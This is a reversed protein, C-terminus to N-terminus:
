KRVCPLFIVKAPTTEKDAIRVNSHAGTTDVEVNESGTGASAEGRVESGAPANDSLRVIIDFSAAQGAAINGLNCNSLGIGCGASDTVYTLMNSYAVNVSVNDLVGQGNNVATVTLTFLDGPSVKAASSSMTLRMRRVAEVRSFASAWDNGNNDDYTEASVIADLAVKAGSGLAENTTVKIKITATEGSNLYGLACAQFSILCSGKTSSISDLEGAGSLFTAVEVNKAQSPGHNTVRLIFEVQEGSKVKNDDVRLTLGLDAVDEIQHEVVAHNNSPDLDTGESEVDAQNNISQADKAWVEVNFVVQEGPKLIGLKCVLQQNGSANGQHPTCFNPAKYRYDGDSSILEIVKTDFANGPGFNDVVITYKISQGENISSDPKGFKRIKLDNVNRFVLDESYAYIPIGSSPPTLSSVEVVNDSHHGDHVNPKVQVVIDFKFTKGVAINGLQCTVDEGANTCMVGHSYLYEVSGTLEDFVEVNRALSPGHNTVEVTYFFIEGTAPSLSSASKKVSLEARNLIKTEATSEKDATSSSTVKATNSVTGPPTESKIHGLVQIQHHKGPPMNGLSCTLLRASPAFVCESGNGGVVQVSEYAFQPPLEDKVIVNAATSPNGSSVDIFYSVKNGAVVTGPLSQKFITLDGTARLAMSASTRNNDGFPDYTDSKVTVNNIVGPSSTYNPDTPGTITLIIEDDKAMNGLNCVITAGITCSPNSPSGLVQVSNVLQNPPLIDTVQVNEAASPGINRVTVTWTAIEGASITPTTASKEVSIDASAAVHMSATDNNNSMDPDQPDAAFVRAENNVDVEEYAVVQANIVWREYRALEDRTCSFTIPQGVDGAQPPSINCSGGAPTLRLLEFPGSGFITDEVVIDQAASVGLNDVFITYVFPEGARIQGDPKVFKQLKLDAWGVVKISAEATAPEPLHCVNNDGDDRCATIEATNVYDGPALTPAAKVLVDIIAQEGAPLVPIWCSTASCSMTINSSSMSVATLLGPDDTVLVEYADSPGSNGVYIKFHAAPGGAIIQDELAEKKLTLTSETHVVTRLVHQNNTLNPDPNDATVSLVQGLMKDGIPGFFGATGTDAPLLVRYTAVLEHGIPMPDQRTCTMGQGDCQWNPGAAPAQTLQWDGPLGTFLHHATVGEAPNPGLNEVYLEFEYVEGAVPTNLPVITTTADMDTPPLACFVAEFNVENSPAWPTFGAFSTRARANAVNPGVVDGDSIKNLDMNFGVLVSASEGVALDGLGCNVRDQNANGTGEICVPSAGGYILGEPLLDTLGINEADTPGNNTVQIEYLGYSELCIKDKLVSKEVTLNVDCAVWFPNLLDFNDLVHTEPNDSSVVAANNGPDLLGSSCARPDRSIDASLIVSVEEEPNVAGLQCQVGDTGAICTRPQGNADIAPLPFVVIRYNELRPPFILQEGRDRLIVNQAKGPGSNAVTVKWKVTDGSTFVPVQSVLEKEVSLDVEPLFDGVDVRARASSGSNAFSINYGSGPLTSTGAIVISTNLEVDNIVQDGPLASDDVECTALVTVVGVANTSSGYGPVYLGQPGSVSAPSIYVPTSDAVAGSCIDNLRLGAIDSPGENRVSIEFLATSGPTVEAQLPRKIIGLRVEPEVDMDIELWNDPYFPDSNLAAVFVNNEVTGDSDILHADPDAMYTVTIINARGPNLPERRVCSMGNGSACNWLNADFDNMPGGIFGAKFTPSSIIHAAIDDFHDSLTVGYAAGPGYNEILIQCTFGDSDGPVIPQCYKDVLLDAEPYIDGVSGREVWFSPDYSIDPNLTGGGRAEPGNVIIRAENYFLDGVVTSGAVRVSALADACSGAPVYLGRANPGDVNADASLILSPANLHLGPIDRVRVPFLDSPGDNCVTIEYIARAGPSVRDNLLQQQISLSAQAQVEYDDNASILSGANNSTNSDPNDATILAQISASPAPLLYHANPTIRVEVTLTEKGVPMPDRREMTLGNSIRWQRAPNSSLDVLVYDLNDLNLLVSPDQAPAPGLNQVEIQLELNRGPVITNRDLTISNIRVDAIPLAAGVQGPVRVIAPTSTIDFGLDNVGDDVVSVDLALSNGFNDGAQAADNVKASAIFTRGSGAPLGFGGSGALAQQPLIPAGVAGSTADTLALGRIDSPGANYISIEWM